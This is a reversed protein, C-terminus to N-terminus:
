EEAGALSDRQGDAGAYSHRRLARLLPEAAPTPEIDGRLIDQTRPGFGGYIRRDAEHDPRLTAGDLSIGAFVGKSRSYSVIEAGMLADTQVMSKRGFPGAAAAADAGLTFSTRLLHDISRPSLFVLILDTASGGIQLGFNGGEIRFTAPASWGRRESRCTVVGKGYRGGFFFAGKWVSPFVGVCAARQLLDRPIGRDFQGFTERLVLAANHLRKEAKTPPGAAAPSLGATLCLALLAFAMAPRAAARRPAPLRFRRERGKAGGGGNAEHKAKM